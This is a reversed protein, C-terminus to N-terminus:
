ALWKSKIHTGYLLGGEIKVVKLYLLYDEGLIFKEEEDKEIVRIESLVVGRYVGKFHFHFHFYKDCQDKPQSVRQCRSLVLISTNM